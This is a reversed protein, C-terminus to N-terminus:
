VTLLPFPGPYDDRINMWNLMPYGHVEPYVKKLIILTVIVNLVTKFALFVPNKIISLLYEMTYVYFPLGIWFVTNQANFIPRAIRFLTEASITENNHVINEIRCAAAMAASLPYGTFHNGRELHDPPTAMIVVRNTGNVDLSKPGQAAWHSDPQSSDNIMDVLSGSHCSDFLLLMGKCTINTLLSGLEDDTIINEKDDDSHKIVDYPCIAEDRLDGPSHRAEDGDTDPITTGHGCWQFVFYDDPGLTEAMTQLATIISNRTADENLLLIMHDEQWNKGILLSDHFRSLWRDPMPIFKPINYRSDEWRTLAAIVAYYSGTSSSGTPPSEQHQAAILTPVSLLLLSLALTTLTRRM